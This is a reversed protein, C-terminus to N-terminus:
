RIIFFGFSSLFIYVPIWFRFSLDRQSELRIAFKELNGDCAFSARNAGSFRFHYYAIAAVFSLKFHHQQFQRKFFAEPFTIIFVYRSTSYKYKYM